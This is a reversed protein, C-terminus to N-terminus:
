AFGTRGRKLIKDASFGVFRGDPSWFPNSAHETGAIRQAATSGLARVWLSSEGSSTRAVFVLQRGDPSPVPVGSTKYGDPAELTFQVPQPSRQPWLRLTPLLLVLGASAALSAWALWQRWRPRPKIARSPPPEEELELRADGIDRLRRKPNKELCRRLLRHVSSPTSRPLLSWDPENDLVAAIIDAATDGAFPAQGTLM